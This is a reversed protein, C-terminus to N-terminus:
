SRALDGAAEFHCVITCRDDSELMCTDQRLAVREGFHIAAGAIFGEALACLRRHSQYGIILSGDDGDEFSFEPVDAGPYIKRVEPHIIENLTLVFPRTSEHRDFFDPYRKALLPIAGEGITRVVAAPEVGLVRAAAAVLTGLDGDPYSGLSTYAGDLGSADLVDDWTSEGYSTVVVEEALNFIIGKM